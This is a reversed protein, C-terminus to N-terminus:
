GGKTIRLVNRKETIGFFVISSIGEVVFLMGCLMLTEVVSGTFQSVILSIVFTTIWSIFYILFYNAFKDVMWYGLTHKIATKSRNVRAYNMINQMLILVLIVMMITLIGFYFVMAGRVDGAEPAAGARYQAVLTRLTSLTMASYIVLITTAVLRVGANFLIISKSGQKYRLMETISSRRIYAFPLSLLLATLGLMGAMTLLMKFQFGLVVDSWKRFMVFYGAVLVSASCISFIVLTGLVKEKWVTYVSFGHMKEVAIRRCSYLIDHIMVLLFAILCVAVLSYVIGADLKSFPEAVASTVSASVGQEAWADIIRSVDGENQVQLIFVQEFLTRDQKLGNQLTRIEFITNTHFSDITGIKNTNDASDTSLYLDSAKDAASLFRSGKKTLRIDKFAEFQNVYVYKVLVSKEGTEQMKTVYLNARYRDLVGTVSTYFEQPAVSPWFRVSQALENEGVAEMRSRYTDEESIYLTAFTIVSVIVYMIIFVKKM